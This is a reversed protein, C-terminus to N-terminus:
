MQTLYNMKERGITTMFLDDQMNRNKFHSEVTIQTAERGTM